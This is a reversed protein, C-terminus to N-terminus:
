ESRPAKMGLTKMLRHLNNPHLGLIRAAEAYSGGTDKLARGVLQKKIERIMEHFKAGSAAPEVRSEVIAEPLDDPLIQETTGLVIAREIANELERVNGPWDYAMLCAMAEPAILTVRRACSRAYKQLFHTALLPIDDRRDRLAPMAVAVVNLRYFLDERFSGRKIAEKLDRNTAAVIRVNVKISKTGGVREFEREQLVRLLKAQLAPALEGIEDLFVTGGDAEELKGKKQAHAGTFAGKEHGFFESELLTETVAACNIAAFPRQARASTRHIARAVLEKGTGTAGTVLVTADSGSVKMVFRHVARMREGSGILPQIGPLETLLRQNERELTEIKLASRLPAASVEAIGTLLRLDHEGFRVAPNSLDVYIAGRAVGSESLPVALMSTLRAQVVTHSSWATYSAENVCLAASETLVHNIVARPIPFASCEGGRRTWHLASAFTGARDSLLLIAAREAPTADLITAMLRRQLDPLAPAALVAQCAALVSQVVRDTRDDHPVRELLTDRDLYLPDGRRASRHSGGVDPGEDLDVAAPLAPVPQGDVLFLFVSRGIRIEDGHALVREAVAQLNVYTRGRETLDRLTFQRDRGVIAAHRRSVWEDAALCLRNGAERGLTIEGDPLPFTEGQHPGAVAMLRAAM